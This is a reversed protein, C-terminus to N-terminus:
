GVSATSLWFLQRPSYDLGPLRPEPGAGERSRLYARPLSESDSNILNLRITILADSQCQRLRLLGPNSGLMWRCLPIQPAASSVTNFIYYMSFFGFFGGTFHRM